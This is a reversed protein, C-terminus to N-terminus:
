TRWLPLRPWLAPALLGLVGLGLTLALLAVNGLASAPRPPDTLGTPLAYTQHPGEIRAPDVRGAEPEWGGLTEDGDFERVIPTLDGCRRTDVNLIRDEPVIYKQSLVAHRDGGEALVALPGQPPCGLYTRVQEWEGSLFAVRSLASRSYMSSQAVQETGTLELHQICDPLELHCLGLTHGLEHMLVGALQDIDVTAEKFSTQVVAGSDFKFRPAGQFWLPTWYATFTSGRIYYEGNPATGANELQHGYQGREREAAILSEWFPRFEVTQNNAEFVMRTFFGYDVAALMGRIPAIGAHEIQSQDHQPNMVVTLIYPNDGHRSRGLVEEYYPHDYSPIIPPRSEHSLVVRTEIWQVSINGQPPFAGAVREYAPTFDLSAVKHSQPGQVRVFEILLDNRGPRPDFAGWDILGTQDEWADPIGDGDNDRSPTQGSERFAHAVADALGTGYSDPDLPDYGNDREFGDDLGDVDCDPTMICTIAGEFGDPVGDRDVDPDCRWGEREDSDVMGDADDDRDAAAHLSDGDCDSNPLAAEVADLIGDGDSDASLPDIGLRYEEGDLLGDDDTDAVLPDSGREVELLDDARDGDSDERTPDTGRRVEDDDRLGDGDTDPEFPSSGIIRLEEGDALGDQDTDLALPDLAQEVEWGDPLGDGDTDASFPDTGLRLERYTPLGDADAGVATWFLTSSLLVAVALGIAWSRHRSSGFRLRPSDGGRDIQEAAEGGM